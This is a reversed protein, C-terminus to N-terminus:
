TAVTNTCSNLLGVTCIAIFAHFMGTM